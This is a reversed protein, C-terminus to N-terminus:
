NEEKFAIRTVSLPDHIRKGLYFRGIDKFKLALIRRLGPRM